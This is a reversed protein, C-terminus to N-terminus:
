EEEDIHNKVKRYTGSRGHTETVLAGVRLCAVCIFIDVSTAKVAPPPTGFVGKGEVSDLDVSLSMWTALKRSFRSDANKWAATVFRVPQPVVPKGSSVRSRIRRTAATLLQM